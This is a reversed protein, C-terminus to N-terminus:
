VINKYYAEYDEKLGKVIPTFKVGLKELKESKAYMNENPFPFEAEVWKAGDTNPNYNIVPTKGVIKGMEEILGNLTIVEDPSCNFSGTLKNMAILAISQAVDKAFVFQMVAEGNGPVSLPEGKKIKSYIFNERNVYNKPGLIYVPRINAYKVGSKELISECDQKNKARDGWIPWLGLPSDDTIPFIEAKKYVSVTSFNLFFDFDLQEVADKTNQGNRACTDIVVDFHEKINFPGANRDGKVFKVKDGYESQINGRNYLTIEHGKELLLGVLIPGVFRSGGIILIKM